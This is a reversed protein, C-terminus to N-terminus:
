TPQTPRDLTSVVEVRSTDPFQDVLVASGFRWGRELLLGIDRGLSGLDCSVLVLRHAGLGDIADVGPAALGRRAPDAIVTECEVPAEARRAWREVKDHVVVAQPALDVLNARADAVSSEGSEVVLALRGPAAAGGLLGVGAYLDIVPGDSGAVAAAVQDVLAQAGGPSPQFFSGASVQWMRGAVRERIAGAGPEGAAVVVVDDPVNVQGPDHVVVLREGTAVGVRITVEPNSGYRGDVILEQVLPDAAQCSDAVFARDSRRGRFGARGGTIASRVTSRRAGQVTATSVVPDAVGGQRTLQDIVLGQKFLRQAEPDIHLWDCGGCEGARDHPCSSEDREPAAHLIESVAGRAFRKKVEAIEVLVQEGPLAGTVFVVRGDPLRGVAEGGTAMREAQVTYTDGPEVM